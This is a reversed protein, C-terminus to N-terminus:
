VYIVEKRVQPRIAPKLATELGVDIKVGLEKELYRKFGLLNHINKRDRAMDVIIDIDSERTEEGRVYSGFVGIKKIGYATYFFAKKRRLFALLEEKSIKKRGM